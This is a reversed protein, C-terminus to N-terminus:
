RRCRFVGLPKKADNTSNTKVYQGGAPSPVGVMHRTIQWRVSLSAERSLSTSRTRRKSTAHKMAACRRLFKATPALGRVVLLVSPCAGFPRRGKGLLRPRRGKPAKRSANTSYRPSAGVALSRRRKAASLLAVDFTRRQTQTIQKSSPVANLTDAVDAASGHRSRATLGALTCLGCIESGGAGSSASCETWAGFVRGSRESGERRSGFLRM